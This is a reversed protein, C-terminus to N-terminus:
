VGPGVCLSYVEVVSLVNLVSSFDLRVTDFPRTTQFLLVQLSDNGLLALLDLGLLGGSVQQTEQVAGFLSTTITAGSLLDLTLVDDPNAVVFGVRRGAPYITDNDTVQVFTGSLLGVQANLLAATQFNPGSDLDDIVNNAGTVSCLLCLGTTGATVSVNDAFATLPEFARGPGCSLLDPDIDCADGVGDADTDAQNANPTLPCNDVDNNVGDGDADEDCVNGIGDNDSDLQGPNATMPCNDMGDDIGDGDIDSESDCVNGIGDADSDAQDPNSVLPCNDADNGIGDGDTDTDCVDGTGDNDTDLQDTNATLPCNDANDDIGDGDTDNDCVDGVGDNDLDAQDANAILPCNDADDGIGDGDTDTQNDCADGIGDGDTDQQDANAVTPCNDVVDDVSDGDNDADCADGIGDNDSDTQDPNAIAPCNDVTDVIGDGDGDQSSDCADGVGDGDTDTQDPNPTSLCNDAANSIGDGDVDSDCADGIGDNDLDTQATNPVVPCNDVDDIVNDSDIDVVGPPMSGSDGDATCGQLIFVAAALPFLIHKPSFTVIRNGNLAINPGGAVSVVMEKKQLSIAHRRPPESMLSNMHNDIFIQM